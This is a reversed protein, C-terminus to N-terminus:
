LKKQHFYFMYEIKRVPLYNGRIVIDESLVHITWLILYDRDKIDGGILGMISLYVSDKFAKIYKM